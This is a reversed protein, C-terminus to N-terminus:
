GRGEYLFTPKYEPRALLASEILSRLAHLLLLPPSARPNWRFAIVPFTGRRREGRVRIATPLVTYQVPNTLFRFLRHFIGPFMFVSQSAPWSWNSRVSAVYSELIHFLLETDANKTIYGISSYKYLVKLLGLRKKRKTVLSHLIKPVKLFRKLVRSM